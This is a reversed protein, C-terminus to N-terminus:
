KGICTRVQLRALLVPSKLPYRERLVSSAFAPHTGRAALAAFAQANEPLRLCLKHIVSRNTPTSM